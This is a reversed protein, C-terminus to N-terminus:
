SSRSIVLLFFTTKQVFSFIVAIVITTNIRKTVINSTIKAAYSINKKLDPSGSFLLRCSLLLLGYLFLFPPHLLKVRILSPNCFVFKTFEFSACVTVHNIANCYFFVIILPILFDIYRGNLPRPM